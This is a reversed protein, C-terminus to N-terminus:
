ELHSCLRRKRARNSAREYAVRKSGVEIRRNIRRKGTSVIPQMPIQTSRGSNYERALKGPGVVIGLRRFAEAAISEFPAAPTLRGTFRNVRTKAYLGHGVRILVSAAVLKALARGVQSASGFRSFDSRLIVVGHRQRISRLIRQEVSLKRVPKGNM